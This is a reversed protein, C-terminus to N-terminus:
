VCQLFIMCYSSQMKLVICIKLIKFKHRLIQKIAFFYLLVLRFLQSFGYINHLFKRRDCGKDNRNKGEAYEKRSARWTVAYDFIWIDFGGIANRTVDHAHLQAVGCGDYM